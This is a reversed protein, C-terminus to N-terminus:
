RSSRSFRLDLPVVDVAAVVVRDVAVAAVQGVAARPEAALGAL